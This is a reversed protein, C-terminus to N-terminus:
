FQRGEAPSQSSHLENNDGAAPADLNNVPGSYNLVPKGLCQPTNQVAQSKNAMM